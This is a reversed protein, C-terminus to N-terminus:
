QACGLCVWSQRPSAPHVFGYGTIACYTHIHTEPEYSKLIECSCFLHINKPDFYCGQTLTKHTHPVPITGTYQACKLNADSFVDQKYEICWYHLLYLAHQTHTHPWALQSIIIMLYGKHHKHDKFYFQPPKLAIIITSIAYCNNSYAIM